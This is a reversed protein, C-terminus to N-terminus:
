PRASKSPPAGQPLTAAGVRARWRGPLPPYRGTAPDVNNGRLPRHDEYDPQLYPDDVDLGDGDGYDGGEGDDEEDFGGGDVQRFSVGGISVLEGDLDANGEAAARYRNYSRRRKLSLLSPRRSM